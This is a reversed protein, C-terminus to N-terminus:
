PKEQILDSGYVETYTLKGAIRESKMLSIRSVSMEKKVSALEGYIDAAPDSLRVERGLTLHPSYERDELAFGAEDLEATLRKQIAILEQNKEVGAWHTDGGGRRRFRGFGSFSLRFPEGSAWDMASKIAPVRGPDLEGLFVLTLHLNERHTFNGGASAKKLQGIASMLYDKIENNLNIAIFLRMAIGKM